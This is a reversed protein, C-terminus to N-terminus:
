YMTEIMLRTHIARRLAAPLAIRRLRARIGEIVRREFRVASACARCGALHREVRRLDEGTLARDVYDDLRRVVNECDNRDMSDPAATM